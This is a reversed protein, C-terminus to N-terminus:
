TYNQGGVPIDRSFIIDGNSIVVFNTVAAGFNLLGITEGPFRGYNLEFCNALAFGSVDLIKCDLNAMSVVQFYQSVLENQAAILLIDQTEGTVTSPLVQHSLSINNIDFPIYQEAEYRIQEALLKKDMKPMTIKKVIVAMGWMGTCVSKRKSGLEDVLGRVAQSLSMTDIIEGGSVANLPTPALRFGQLTAGSKSVDLEAIKLSSTGIDLGIVKKSKFFM